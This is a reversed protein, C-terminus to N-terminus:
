GHDAPKPIRFFYQAGNNTEIDLSAGLEYALDKVQSLGRGTTAHNLQGNGNDMVSLLLSGDSYERCEINIKGSGTNKFAYKFSNTVLENVIMGMRSALIGDCVVPADVEVEIRDGHDYGAKRADCIQQFYDQLGVEGPQHESLLQYVLMLPQIKEELQTLTDSDTANSKVEDIIALLNSLTNKIRHDAEEKLLAVTKAHGALQEANRKVLRHQKRQSRLLVVLFILTLAALGLGMGLIMTRQRGIKQEQALLNETVEVKYKAFAEITAQYQKISVLSDIGASNGTYEDPLETMNDVDELGEVQGSWMQNIIQQRLSENLVGVNLKKSAAEMFDRPVFKGADTFQHKFLERAEEYKGGEILGVARYGSALFQMTSTGRAELVKKSRAFYYNASDENNTKSHYRGMTAYALGLGDAYQTKEFIDRATSAAWKASDLLNQKLYIDFVHIRNYGANILNGDKLFLSYSQRYFDLARNRDGLFQFSEGLNGLILACLFNGEVNKAADLAKFYALAASDERFLFHYAYGIAKLSYAQDENTGKKAYEYSEKASELSLRPQFIKVYYFSRVRAAITKYQAHNGVTALSDLIDVYPKAKVVVMANLYDIAAEQVSNFYLDFNGSKAAYLVCLSDISYLQPTRAKRYVDALGYYSSAILFNNRANVSLDLSEIAYAISKKPNNTKKALRLLRVVEASDRPDTIGAARSFNIGLCYFFLCLLFSKMHM